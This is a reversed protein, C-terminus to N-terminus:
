CNFQICVQDGLEDVEIFALRPPERTRDWSKELEELVESVKRSPKKPGFDGKLLSQAFQKLAAVAPANHRALERQTGLRDRAENAQLKEFLYHLQQEQAALNEIRSFTEGDM